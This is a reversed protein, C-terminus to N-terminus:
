LQVEGAVSEGVRLIVSIVLLAGRFPTTTGWLCVYASSCLMASWKMPPLLTSFAFSELTFSKTMAFLPCVTM